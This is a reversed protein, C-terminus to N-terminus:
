PAPYIYNEPEIVQHGVSYVIRLRTCQLFFWVREGTSGFVIHHEPKLWASVTKSRKFNSFVVLM